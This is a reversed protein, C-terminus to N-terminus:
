IAQCLKKPIYVRPLMSRVRESDMVIRWFKYVNRLRNYTQLVHLDRSYNSGRMAITLIREIIEPPPRELFPAGLILTLFKRM